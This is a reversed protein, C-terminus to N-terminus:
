LKRREKLEPITALVAAVEQAVVPDNLYPQFADHLYHQIYSSPELYCTIMARKFTDNPASKL